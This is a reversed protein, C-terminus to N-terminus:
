FAFGLSFEAGYFPTNGNWVNGTRSYSIEGSSVGLFGGTRMYFGSSFQFKYGVNAAFIIGSGDALNGGNIDYSSKWYELFPGVYLGGKTGGTFYKAHLGVGIGSINAVDTEGEWIPGFFLGASPFRIHSEIIFHRKITFEVGVVPGVQLFGLPNLYVGTYFDKEHPANQANVSFVSAVFFLLVSLRLFNGRSILSKSSAGNKFHDRAEVAGSQKAVAESLNSSSQLM